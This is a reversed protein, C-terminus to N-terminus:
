IQSQPEAFPFSVRICALMEVLTKISLSFFLCFCGLGGYPLPKLRLIFFSLFFYSVILFDGMIEIQTLFSVIRVHFSFSVYSSMAHSIHPKTPDSQTSSALLKCFKISSIGQINTIVEVHSFLCPSVVYTQAKRIM